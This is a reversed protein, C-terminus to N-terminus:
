WDYGQGRPVLHNFKPLDLDFTLTPPFPIREVSRGELKDVNEDGILYRDEDPGSKQRLDWVPSWFMWVILTWGEWNGHESTGM